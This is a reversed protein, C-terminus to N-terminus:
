VIHIVLCAVYNGFVDFVDSCCGDCSLLVEPVLESLM